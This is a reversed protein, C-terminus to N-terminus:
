SKKTFAIAENMTPFVAFYDFMAPQEIMIKQLLDDTM